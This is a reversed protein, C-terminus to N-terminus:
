KKIKITITAKKGSGDKAKATIKVTKGKGAKKATVVGNANVTAYKKNNSTWTVEKSGGTGVTVNAKITLKKGAKVTKKAAKLSIKKVAGKITITYTDKVGSGDKATATITVTKGAGAAKAKVVGKSTVTAYKTNSSTWKVEKNEANSPSVSATLTMKKGALLTTAKGTINIGTVKQEAEAWRTESEGCVSCSRVEYYGYYYGWKGWKHGLADGFTEYCERCRKPSECTAEMYDHGTAPEMVIGCVKCTKAETCTASDYSTHGNNECESKDLLYYKIGNEIAYQHAYSGSYCRIVKSTGTVLFADASISKVSRPITIEKLHNDGFFAGEGISQLGESLTIHTVSHLGALAVSGLSTIGEGVSIRAVRMREPNECWPPMPAWGNSQCSDLVYDLTAGKGEIVLTVYGADQIYQDEFLVNLYSWTIEGGIAEEVTPEVLTRLIEGKLDIAEAKGPIMLVMLLMMLLASLRKKM